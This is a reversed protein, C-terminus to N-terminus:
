SDLRFVPRVKNETSFVCSFCVRSYFDGSVLVRRVSIVKRPVQVETEQDSGLISFLCM